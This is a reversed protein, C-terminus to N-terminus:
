TRDPGPLTKLYEILDLRERPSLTRGFTEPFAHGRNSNGPLGTDFVTTGAREARPLMARDTVFGVKKPDFRSSGVLFRKPREVEPSLLDYLTPVSGNHLFPGTAWVGALPGAKYAPKGTWGGYPVSPEDPNAPKTLRFGFYAAQEAPTVQRAAFDRTVIAGVAKVLVVGAREVAPLGVLRQLAGSAAFRTYFNTQMRADTGIAEIPIMKVALFTRGFKNEAPDTFRYTEGMHCGDCLDAFLVKGRAAATRDIPPLLDEPWAPPQLADAWAELKLLEPALVSSTFPQGGAGTLDMGGFVGLVEGANRGIPNGAVGNWQVFRQRPTTWIFPYSVPADPSRLNDPRGLADAAVANLIHGFADLRGRGYPVATWNGANLKRLGAAAADLQRRAALVAQPDAAQMRAAFREFRKPDTLTADLAASLAGMFAQYDAQSPAGDIRIRKGGYAIEGTHCAACTMGLSAGSGPVDAPDKAFGIPLGDPNLTSDMGAPLFGFRSLAKASFFAEEGETTELAMALKYPLLRSGQPTWYFLERVAPSWGQDIAVPSGVPLPGGPGDAAAATAASFFALAGLAAARFRAM